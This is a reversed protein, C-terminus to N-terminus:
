HFTTGLPAQPPEDCIADLLLLVKFGSVGFRPWQRVCDVCTANGYGAAGCGQCKELYRKDDGDCMFTRGADNSLTM